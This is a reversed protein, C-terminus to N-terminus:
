SSTTEFHTLPVFYLYSRASGAVENLAEGDEPLLGVDLGKLDQVFLLLPDIRWRDRSGEDNLLRKTHAKRSFTGNVVLRPCGRHGIQVNSM